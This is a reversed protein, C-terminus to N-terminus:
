RARRRDDDVYRNKARRSSTVFLRNSARHGIVGNTGRVGNAVSDGGHDRRGQNPPTRADESVQGRGAADLLKRRINYITIVRDHQNVLYIVM